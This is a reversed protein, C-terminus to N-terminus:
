SALRERLEAITILEVGAERWSRCCAEGEAEDLAAIADAIVTVKAGFRLFGNVANDVCIDMCVGYVVIDDYRRALEDFLRYANRNGKFIDIDQKEIVIEGRHALARTFEDESLERNEIYFPNLPATEDVKLQGPTGDMCHDPYPGGNRQLEADGPFHRCASAVIRINKRRALATAEALAPLVKLASAVHLAGGPVLFDHQTDVDYFLTTESRM